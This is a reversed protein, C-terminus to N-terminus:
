EPPHGSKELRERLGALRRQYFTVEPNRLGAPIAEGPKPRVPESEEGVLGEDTLDVTPPRQEVNAPAPDAVDQDAIAALTGVENAATAALRRFRGEADALGTHLVSIRREMREVKATAESQIEEARRLAGTVTAKAEDAAASGISEAEDAAAARSTQLERQLEARVEAREREYRAQMEEREAVAIARLRRTEEIAFEMEEEALARLMAADQWMTLGGIGDGSAGMVDRLMREALQVAQHRIRQAAAVEGPEESSVVGPETLADLADEYEALAAVVERRFAEVGAADYSHDTGSFSFQQADESSIAV